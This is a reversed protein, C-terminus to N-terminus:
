VFAGPAITSNAAAILMGARECFLTHSNGLLRFDSLGNSREMLSGFWVFTFAKNCCCFVLLLVAEDVLGLGLGVVVYGLQGATSCALLRKGDKQFFGLVSAIVATISGITTLTPQM